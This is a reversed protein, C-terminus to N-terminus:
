QRKHSPLNIITDTNAVVFQEEKEYEINKHQAPSCIIGRVAAAAVMTPITTTTTSSQSWPTNVQGM